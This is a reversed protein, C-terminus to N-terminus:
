MEMKEQCGRRKAGEGEGEGEGIGREIRKRECVDNLLNTMEVM